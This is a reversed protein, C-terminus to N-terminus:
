DTGYKMEFKKIINYMYILIIKREKGSLDRSMQVVTSNAWCWLKIGCCAARGHQQPSETLELTDKGTEGKSCLFFYFMSWYATAPKHFLHYNISFQNINISPPNRHEKHFSYDILFTRHLPEQRSKRM